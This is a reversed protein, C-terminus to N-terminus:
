IVALSLNNEQLNIAIGQENTFKGIIMMCTRNQYVFLPLFITELQLGKLCVSKHEQLSGDKPFDM